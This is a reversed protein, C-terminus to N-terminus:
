RLEHKGIFNIWEIEYQDVVKSIGLNAALAIAGGLFNLFTFTSISGGSGACDSGQLHIKLFHQLLERDSNERM